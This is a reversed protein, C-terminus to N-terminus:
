KLNSWAVELANFVPGDKCASKYGAVTPVPCCLCVGIGCAMREELSVYCPTKFQACVAAARKLMLNPGCACVTTKGGTQALENELLVTVLCQKGKSGDETCAIVRAGTERFGAACLVGSSSKAGLIVTLGRKKGLKQALFVLPAVGMGGALLIVRGSNIAPFGRGLPGLIDLMTGAKLASLAFTAAGVVRYLVKITNGDVRHISFPRRLIHEGGPVRMHVFQGPKAAAAIKPADFAALWVGDAIKRNSLLKCNWNRM